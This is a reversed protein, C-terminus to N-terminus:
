IMKITGTVTLQPKQQVMIETLAYSPLDILNDDLVYVDAEKIYTFSHLPVDTSHGYVSPIDCMKFVEKIDTSCLKKHRSHTM